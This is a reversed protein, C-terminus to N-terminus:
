FRYEIERIHDTIRDATQQPYSYWLYNKDMFIKIDHIGRKLSKMKNDFTSIETNFIQKKLHDFTDDMKNFLTIYYFSNHWAKLTDAVMTYVDEFHEFKESLLQSEEQFVYIGYTLNHTLFQSVTTLNTIPTHKCEASRKDRPRKPNPPGNNEESEAENFDPLLRRRPLRTQSEQLIPDNSDVVVVFNHRPHDIAYGWGVRQAQVRQVLSDIQQRLLHQQTRVKYINSMVNACKTNYKTLQDWREKVRQTRPFHNSQESFQKTNEDYEKNYGAILREQNAVHDELGTIQRLTTIIADRNCDRRSVWRSFASSAALVDEISEGEDNTNLPHIRNVSDKEQGLCPNLPTIDISIRKTAKPPSPFEIDIAPAPTQTTPPGRTPPLGDGGSGTGSFHNSHHSSFYKM